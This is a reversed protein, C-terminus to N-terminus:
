QTRAPDAGAHAVVTEEDSTSRDSTVDETSIVDTDSLTRIATTKGAGMPGAVLIVHEAM